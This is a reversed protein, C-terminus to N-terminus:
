RCSWYKCVVAGCGPPPTTVTQSGSLGDASLLPSTSVGVLPPLHWEGSMDLYMQAVRDPLMVSVHEGEADLKVPQCLRHAVIVVYHKTLPMASALSGDAPRVIRVSLGRDFLNGSAALLDRLAEATAPLYGAHVILETKNLALDVIEAATRDRMPAGGTRRIGSWATREAESRSLGARTAAEAIVAAAANADLLGSAVMEGARCAAWYTLSNREGSRSAVILRVLQELAHSDPVKIRASDPRRAPSLKALLWRPWAAPSAEGLAPLGAAPWWVIYGGTARVDVGPAIQGASCRLGAEHKYLLHLGGSRTRHVRTPLLRHKQERFWREGDHRPDIDLVALGSMEGTPVGILPAPHRQWIERLKREDHTADKFGRPTAPRKDDRCPFCPLGQKALTNAMEATTM